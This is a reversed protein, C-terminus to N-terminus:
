RATTTAAMSLRTFPAAPWATWFMFRISPRGSVSPRRHFEEDFEAPGQQVGGGRAGREGLLDRGRAGAGRDGDHVAAALLHGAVEGLAADFALEDLAEADGTGLGDVGDQLDEGAADVVFQDGGEVAGAGEGDAEGADVRKEGLGLLHVGREA